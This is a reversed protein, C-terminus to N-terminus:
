SRTDARHALPVDFDYDMDNVSQEILPIVIVSRLASLPGARYYLDQDSNNLADRIRGGGWGGHALTASLGAPM